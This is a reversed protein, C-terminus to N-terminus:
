HALSRRWGGACIFHGSVEAHGGNRDPWSRMPCNDRKPRVAVSAAPPLLALETLRPAPPIVIARRSAGALM